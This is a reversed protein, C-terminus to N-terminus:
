DGSWYRIPGTDMHVFKSSRYLGVGGRRRQVAWAHLSETSVGPLRFDVAQGHTHASDRAVQHGKKRLMLNYKPARFGSVIEVRHSAFHMAAERLMRVVDVDMAISDNTYHDRFFHDVTAAAIGSATAPHKLDIIDVALWEDTWTNHLTILPPPPRGRVATSSKKSTRKGRLYSAKKPDGPPKVIPADTAPPQAISSHPAMVLGIVMAAVGLRM